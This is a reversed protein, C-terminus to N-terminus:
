SDGGLSESLSNSLSVRYSHDTSRSVNLGNSVRAGVNIAAYLGASLTSTYQAVSQLAEVTIELESTAKAINMRNQELALALRNTEADVRSKQASAMASQIEAHASAKVGFVQAAAGIRTGETRNKEGIAQLKASFADVMGRFAMLSAENKKIGIEAISTQVRNQSEVAEAHAKYAEM